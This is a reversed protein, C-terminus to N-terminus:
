KKGEAKAIALDALSLAKCLRDRTTPNEEIESVLRRLAILLEPAACFIRAIETAKVVSEKTGVHNVGACFERNITKSYHIGIQKNDIDVTDTNTFFYGKITKEQKKM